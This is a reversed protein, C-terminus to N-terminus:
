QDTVTGAAASVARRVLVEVMNRKYEERGYADTDADVAVAASNAAVITREVLSSRPTGQLTKEAGRMRQPKPGACGVVVRADAVEDGDARWDLRVAVSVTPRELARFRRYAFSNSPSAPPVRVGLLVEGPQLDVEFAGQTWDELALSRSGEPGRLELMADAAMLLAGPDGHPEAFCLNGGLTGTNRVRINAINAVLAALEPFHQRVLPSREVDTHTTTAGIFLSGDAELEVGTLEPVRKLDILNRTNLFGERLVLLLETGGAYYRADDGIETALRIAEDLSQPRLLSLPPIM